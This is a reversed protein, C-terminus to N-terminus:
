KVLIKVLVSKVGLYCHIKGLKSFYRRDVMESGRRKKHEV